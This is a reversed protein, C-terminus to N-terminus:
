GEVSIPVDHDLDTKTRQRAVLLPGALDELLECVNSDVTIAYSRLDSIHYGKLTKHLVLLALPKSKGPVLGGVNILTM